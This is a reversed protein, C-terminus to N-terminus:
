SVPNIATKRQTHLTCGLLSAGNLSVIFSYRIWADSHFKHPCSILFPWVSATFSYKLSYNGSYQIQSPERASNTKGNTFFFLKVHMINVVASIRISCFYIRCDAAWNRHEINLRHKNRYKSRHPGIKHKEILPFRISLGMSVWVCVSGWVFVFRCLEHRHMNPFENCFWLM